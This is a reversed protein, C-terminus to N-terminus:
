LVLIVSTLHHHLGLGVLNGPCAIQHFLDPHSEGGVHIEHLGDLFQSAVPDRRCRYHVALAAQATDQGLFVPQAQQIVRRQM